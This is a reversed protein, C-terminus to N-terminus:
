LECCIDTLEKVSERMLILYLTFLLYSKIVEEDEDDTAMFKDSSDNSDNSTVNSDNNEVNMQNDKSDNADNQVNSENDEIHVCNTDIKHDCVPGSTADLSHNSESVVTTSMDTSCQNVVKNDNIENCDNEVLIDENQLENSKVTEENCDNIPDSNPDM